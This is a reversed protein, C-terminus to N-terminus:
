RGGPLKGLRGSVSGFGLLLCAPERGSESLISILYDLSCKNRGEGRGVRLGKLLCKLFSRVSLVKSKLNHLEPCRKVRLLTMETHTYVASDVVRHLPFLM